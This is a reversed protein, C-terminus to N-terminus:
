KIFDRIKNLVHTDGLIKRHGLGATIYLEHNKLKSAINYAAKVPVDVDDTDHIILVPLEIQEAAVSASYDNMKIQFKSEFHKTLKESINPKMRLKRVFEDTIDKIIDGSGIIVVKNVTIGQKIANLTAMSGLSHGVIVEFGSYLKNLHHICAIFETMITTKGSSNGHAPADFSIVRFGQAVLLDAIKVLQTGRGSWGHVLLANRSGNGYEYVTINKNISSINIQKQISNELMHFERKPVKHRIPTAFLKAAFLTALKPSTYELLKATYLISKPIKM